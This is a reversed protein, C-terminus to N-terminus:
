YMGCDFCFGWRFIQFVFVIKRMFRIFNSCYFLVLWILFFFFIYFCLISPARLWFVFEFWLKLVLWILVLFFFFSSCNKAETRLVHPPPLLFFPGMQGMQTHSLSLSEQISQLLCLALSFFSFLFTFLRFALFSYFFSLSTFILAGASSLFFTFHLYLYPYAQELTYRCRCFRDAWVAWPKTSLKRCPPRRYIKLVSTSGTRGDANLYACRRLGFRGSCTKYIHILLPRVNM